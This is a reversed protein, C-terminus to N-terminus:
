FNFYLSLVSFFYSYIFCDYQRTEKTQLHIKQIDKKKTFFCFCFLLLKSFVHKLFHFFVVATMKRNQYVRSGQFKSGSLLAGDKEVVRSVVNRRVLRSKPSPSPRPRPRPRSQSQALVGQFM